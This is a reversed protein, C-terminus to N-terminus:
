GYLHRLYGYLSYLDFYLNNNIASQREVLVVGIRHTNSYNKTYNENTLRTKESYDENIKVRVRYSGFTVKSKSVM